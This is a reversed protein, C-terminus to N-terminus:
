DEDKQEKWYRGIQSTLYATVVEYAEKKEEYVVRLLYEKNRVMYKRQAVRRGGYGDVIQAPSNITERTCKQSIGRRKSKKKQM